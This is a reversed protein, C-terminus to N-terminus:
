SVLTERQNSTLSRSLTDHHLLGNHVTHVTPVHTNAYTRGSDRGLLYPPFHICAESGPLHILLPSLISLVRAAM